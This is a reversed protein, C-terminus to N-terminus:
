EFSPPPGEVQILREFGDLEEALLNEVGMKMTLVASPCSHCAGVLQVLVDGGQVDILTIDGGDSQLAPRVMEDLIEQVADRSLGETAVPAAAVPEPEPEVVPESAMPEAWVASPTAPARTEVLRLTALLADARRALGRRVRVATPTRLM